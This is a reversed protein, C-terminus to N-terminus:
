SRDEFDFTVSGFDFLISPDPGPCLVVRHLQDEPPFRVRSTLHQGGEVITLAFRRYDGDMGEDRLHGEIVAVTLRRITSGVRGHVGVGVQVLRGEMRALRALADGPSLIM